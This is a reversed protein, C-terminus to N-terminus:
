PLKKKKKLSLTSTLDHLYTLIYFYLLRVFCFFVLVSHSSGHLYREKFCLQLCGRHTRMGPHRAPQEMPSNNTPLFFASPIKSLQLDRIRIHTPFARQDPLLGKDRRRPRQSRTMWFPPSSEIRLLTYYTVIFIVNTVRLNQFPYRLRCQSTTCM